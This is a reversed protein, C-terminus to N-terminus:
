STPGNFRVVSASSGRRSDIRFETLCSATSSPSTRRRRSSGYTARTQWNLGSAADTRKTPVDTTSGSAWTLAIQISKTAAGIAVSHSKTAGPKLKDTFSQPPTQCTIAAGITNMVSQLQSSDTLAFETLARVAAIDEALDARQPGEPTLEVAVEDGPALGLQQARAPGFDFGWGDGGPALRARIRRGALTGNVHHEAKAGWAEDPDFPVVIVARGGPGAAVVVTFRETRM